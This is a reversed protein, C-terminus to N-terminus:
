IARSPRSLRASDIPAGVVEHDHAFFGRAGYNADGSECLGLRLTRRASRADQASLSTPCDPQRMSDLIEGAVPLAGRILPKV